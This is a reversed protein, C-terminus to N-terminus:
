GSKLETWEVATPWNGVGDQHEGCVSSPATGLSVAPFVKIREKDKQQSQYTGVGLVLRLKLTRSSGAPFGIVQLGWFM